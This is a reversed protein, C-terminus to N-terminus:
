TGRDNASLMHTKFDAQPQLEKMASSHLEVMRYSPMNAYGILSLTVQAFRSTILIKFYLPASSLARVFTAIARATGLEEVRNCTDIADIIILWPQSSPMEYGQFSKQALISVQEAAGRNRIDPEVSIAHAIRRLFEKDFRAVKYMVTPILHESDRCTSDGNWAFFYSSVLRGEQHAQSAISQAIATTTSRREGYMWYVMPQSPDILWDM